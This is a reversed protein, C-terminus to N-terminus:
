CTAKQMTFTYGTSVVHMYQVVQKIECNYKLIIKKKNM